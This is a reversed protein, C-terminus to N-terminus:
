KIGIVTFNFNVHGRTVATNPSNPQQNGSCNTVTFQLNILDSEPKRITFTAQQNGFNNTSTYSNLTVVEPQSEPLIAYQNYSITNNVGLCLSNIVQFGSIIWIIRSQSNSLTAGFPGQTFSTAVINFKDYKDWLTGLIQRIPVQSFTFQSYQANMTGYQNTGGATLMITNLTFNRSQATYFDNLLNKYMKMKPEIGRATLIFMQIQSTPLTATGGVNEFQIRMNALQTNPKIMTLGIGGDFPVWSGRNEAWAPNATYYTVGLLPNSRITGNTSTNIINLGNCIFNVFMTPGTGTPGMYSFNVIFQEYNNWLMEGLWQRMDVFFTYDANTTKFGYQNTTTALTNAMLFLTAVEKDM